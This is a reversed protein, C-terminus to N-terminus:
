IVAVIVEWHSGLAFCTLAFTVCLLLVPKGCAEWSHAFTRLCWLYLCCRSALAKGLRHLHPRVSCMADFVAEWYSGLAITLAFVVSLLLCPKGVAEWLSAFSRSCWLHRGLPKGIRHLHARINCITTLM